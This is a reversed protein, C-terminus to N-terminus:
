KHPRLNLFWRHFSPDDTLEPHFSTGILNGQRVAVTQGQYTALTQVNKGQSAVVPARIFVALIPHDLGQIAVKDEFSHLQRGFANRQVTIDLLGLTFQDPRDQISKAMLIMGMCTGWVPTGQKAMKAIAKALGYRQLLLGVTTSEGGPIILATVHDLDQPTRVEVTEVDKIGASKIAEIHKHFDGQVALIGVKRKEPM